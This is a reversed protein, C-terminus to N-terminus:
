LDLNYVKEWRKQIVEQSFENKVASRANISVKKSVEKQILINELIDNIQELSTYIFCNSGNIAKVGQFSYKTGVVIKGLYMCEIVRNKIGGGANDFFLIVDSNLIKQYYNDVFTIHEVRSLNNVLKDFVNMQSGTRGIISFKNIILSKNYFYKLYQFLPEKIHEQTLAGITLVSINSGLVYNNRLIYKDINPNVMMPISSVKDNSLGIEDLLYQREENSVVNINKFYKLKKRETRKILYFDISLKLKRFITKSSSKESLVRKSIADNITLIVKENRFIDSFSLTNFMYLHVIDYDLTNIGRELLLQRMKKPGPYRRFSFPKLTLFGRIGNMVLEFRNNINFIEVRNGLNMKLYEDKLSKNATFVILDHSIGNGKVYNLIQYPIISAGSVPSICDNEVIFLIKM